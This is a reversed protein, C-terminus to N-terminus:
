CCPLQYLSSASAFHKRLILMAMGCFYLCKLQGFSLTELRKIEKKLRSKKLFAHMEIWLATTALAGKM